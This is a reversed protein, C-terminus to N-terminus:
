GPAFLLAIINCGPEQAHAGGIGTAASDAKREKQKHMERQTVNRELRRGFPYLLNLGCVKYWALKLVAM